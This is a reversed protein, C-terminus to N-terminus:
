ICLFGELFLLESGCLGCYLLKVKYQYMRFVIVFVFSRVPFHIRWYLCIVLVFYLLSVKVRVEPFLFVAQPLQSFSDLAGSESANTKKELCTPFEENLQDRKGISLFRPHSIKMKLNQLYLIEWKMSKMLLIFRNLRLTDCVYSFSFGSQYM